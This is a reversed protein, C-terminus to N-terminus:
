AFSGTTETAALVLSLRLDATTLRDRLSAQNTQEDTLEKYHTEDNNQLRRELALRKDQEARQLAASAQSLESLTEAQLQAQHELVRGHRWDQATWALLATGAIVTLLVGVAAIRYQAPILDFIRMVSGEGQGMARQIRWQYPSHHHQVSGLGRACEVRKDVLVVGGVRGGM